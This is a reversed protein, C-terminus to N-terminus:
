TVRKIRYTVAGGPLLLSEVDGAGYRSEVYNLLSPLYGPFYRISGADAKAASLTRMCSIANAASACASDPNEPLTPDLFAGTSVAHDVGRFEPRDGGGLTSLQSNSADIAVCSDKTKGYMAAFHASQRGPRNVRFNVIISQGPLVLGPTRASFATGQNQGTESLFDTPDGTTCLKIFGQSPATGIETFSDQSNTVYVAGPSM